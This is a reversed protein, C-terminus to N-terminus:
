VACLLRRNPCLEQCWDLGVGAIDLGVDAMIQPKLDVLMREASM